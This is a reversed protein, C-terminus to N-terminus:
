RDIRAAGAPERADLPRCFRAHRQRLQTPCDREFGRRALFSDLVDREFEPQLVEGAEECPGRNRGGSRSPLWGRVKRAAFRDRFKRHTLRCPRVVEAQEWAGTIASAVATISDALRLELIPKVKGYFMAFYADDYVTRGSPRRKDADLIAQM